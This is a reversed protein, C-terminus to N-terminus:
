CCSTSTPNEQHNWSWWTCIIYWGIWWDMTKYNPWYTFGFNFKWLTGHTYLISGQCWHHQWIKIKEGNSVRWRAGRQLVDRGKFISKWACSGMRSDVAEMISTNRSFRAKLVKYFLSTTNYLLRWVQKALLSNNFLALDRFGMGGVMKSKTM